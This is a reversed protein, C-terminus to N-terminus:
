VSPFHSVGVITLCLSKYCNECDWRFNCTNYEDIDKNMIDFYSLGNKKM